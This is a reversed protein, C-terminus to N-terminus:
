IAGKCTIILETNKEDVNITDIIELYKGKFKIRQHATIGAIYRTKFVETIESNMTSLKYYEKSTKPMPQAWITRWLAWTETSSLEADQAISKKYLSIQHTLDGANIM